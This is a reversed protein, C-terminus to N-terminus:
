DAAISRGANKRLGKGYGERAASISSIKMMAVAKSQVDGLEDFIPLVEEQLICLAKDSEGRGILVDAILSSALGRQRADGEKRLIEAALLAEV